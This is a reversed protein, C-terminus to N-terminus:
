WTGHLGVEGVNVGFESEGGAHLESLFCGPVASGAEHRVPPNETRSIRRPKMGSITREGPASAMNVSSPAIPKECSM